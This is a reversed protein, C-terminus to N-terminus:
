PKLHKLYVAFPVGYVPPADHNWQFGMRFYMPLSVTMIPSTHLAIVSSGDRRARGICEETLARGVGMRRCTPDVVLSRIIPWGKEFYAAKPRHPPFYAVAGVISGALEAVMIEGHEVLSSMRGYFSALAPWDSYQTSFEQFAALALQNVEDADPEQYDRLVASPM